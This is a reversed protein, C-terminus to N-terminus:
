RKGSTVLEKVGEAKREALKGVKKAKRRLDKSKDEALKSLDRSKREARKGLEESKRQARKGLEESKRQARKSLSQTKDELRDGKRAAKRKMRKSQSRIVAAAAAAYKAAQTTAESATRDGSRRLKRGTRRLRKAAIKVSRRKGRNRLYGFALALGAGAAMAPLSKGLGGASRMGSSGNASPEPGDPPAASIDALASAPDKEIALDGLSVVGVPKGDEVVPLRRVAKERMLRVAEDVPAEPGLATVDKTAVDELHVTSADTGDPVVRVAIDRDTIIGYLKKHANVVIVDGIDDDRMLEAAEKVTATKPLVKPDPTMVDRLTQPM